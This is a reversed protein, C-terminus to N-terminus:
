QDEQNIIILMLTVGFIAVQIDICKSKAPFKLIKNFSIHASCYSNSLTNWFFGGCVSSETLKVPPSYSGQTNKKKILIEKIEFRIKCRLQLYVTFFHLMGDSEREINIHKQFPCVSSAWEACQKLQM